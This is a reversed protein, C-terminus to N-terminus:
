RPVFRTTYAAPDVGAVGVVDAGALAVLRDVMSVLGDISEQTWNSTTGKKWRAIVTPFQAPDPLSYLGLDLISQWFPDDAPAAVMAAFTDQLTAIFRTKLEDPMDDRAVVMLNPLDSPLGLEGLMDAVSMVERAVGAAEMRAVWHWLPLAADVQGDATLQMMLPPAAAVVESDEQVDFGYESITLARLILLSKDRLSGAAITKGKLDALGEIGSDVGVVLAGVATAYPYIGSAAIGAERLLAPALFDDVKVDAAGSRLAIESAQKSAYPTAVVQIGNKTATDFYDMAHVVWSFTGTAEMAANVVPLQGQAAGHAALPSLLLILCLRLTRM